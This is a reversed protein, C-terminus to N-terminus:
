EVLIRVEVRRNKKAGETTKGDAIPKSGGYGESVLRDGNIGKAIIFKRVSEARKKSLSRSSEDDTGAAATHGGIEIRIEPNAQL